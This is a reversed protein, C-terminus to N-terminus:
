TGCPLGGPGARAEGSPAAAEARLRACCRAVAARGEDSMDADIRAAHAELADAKASLYASRAEDPTGFTGLSSMRGDTCLLAEYRGGAAGYVGQPLVERCRGVSHFSRVKSPQKPASSVLERPILVCTDPGYRDSGSLSINLHLDLSKDYYHAEYWEAFAQFELWEGCVQRDGGRGRGLCAALMNTWAGHARRNATCTYPGSGICGIGLATRDYPSPVRGERFAEYAVGRRVTGHGDRVLVDYGRQPTKGVIEMDWGGLTRSTEGIHDYNKM